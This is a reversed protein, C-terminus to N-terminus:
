RALHFGMEILYCRYDLCSDIIKEFRIIKIIKQM